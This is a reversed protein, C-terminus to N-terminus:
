PLQRVRYFVRTKTGAITTDTYSTSTGAGAPYGTVLQVWGGPQGAATLDTSYDVAYTKGAASPFTLVVKPSPDASYTISSIVFDGAPPTVGAVEENTLGYLHFSGSTATTSAPVAAEIVLNDADATYRYNLYYGDHMSGGPVVYQPRDEPLLAHSTKTGNTFLLDIPRGVLTTAWLRIYFRFDYTKGPTLGNLTYTQKAGPAAGTSAYVFGGLLDRLGTGTVSGSAPVWNENRLAAIEGKTGTFAWTFNDPTAALSLPAFPVNNITVAYGGSIAHTYTKTASIGSAADDTLTVISFAAEQVPLSAIASPDSGREIEFGDPYCDGDTDGKAPHSGSDNVGAVVGTNSEINDTLGDRDTDTVLPNSPPRISDGNVELGDELGDSDTDALRPDIGAYHPSFGTSINYEQLDTLTDGDFNGTGAGPGPGAANGKLDTLNGAKDLEWSDPIQDSDSDAVIKLKIPLTATRTPSSGVAKVLVSLETGDALPTFDFGSSELRNGTIKFKANDEGGAGAVLSYTSTEAADNFTASLTGILGGNTVSSYFTSNDFKAVLGNEALTSIAFNDFATGPMYNGLEMYLVGLNNAWQFTYASVVETGDVSATVAVDAGDAFSTFHYDIVVHRTALTAADFSGGTIGTGGNDFYQTGGNDRFLIGFDTEAHTIRTAPEALTAAPPFGVAFSVWNASTNDPPTWDFEVRFGGDAAILAGTDGSAFNWWNALNGVDHFRIRGDGGTPHRLLNLKNSLIGSQIRASRLQISDALLGARRGTQDSNDFNTTDPANFNDSIVVPGAHLPLMTLCLGTFTLACRFPLSNM